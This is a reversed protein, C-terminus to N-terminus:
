TAPSVTPVKWTMAILFAPVRASVAVTVMLAGGDGGGGDSETIVGPGGIMGM